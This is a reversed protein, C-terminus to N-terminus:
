LYFGSDELEMDVRSLMGIVAEPIPSSGGSSSTNRIQLNLEESALPALDILSVDTVGWRQTSMKGLFIQDRWMKSDKIMGIHRLEIQVQRLLDRGVVQCGM